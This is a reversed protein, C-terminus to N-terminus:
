IMQRERLSVYGTASVILHDEVMIGLKEGAEMIYKTLEIDARSPTCDGSPHNHALLLSSAGHYLAQKIIERPYVAARDVTGIQHIEDVILQRKKDLYFVHFQEVKMDEIRLRCYRVLEKKNSLVGKTKIQEQALRIAVVRIMKFVAASTEGFGKLKQLDELSASFIGTLTGFQKLLEKSLPKVDGRPHSLFLVMELLEYDALAEGGAKLLRARLRARHGLQHDDAAM